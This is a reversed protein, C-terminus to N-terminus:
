HWHKPPTLSLSAVHQRLEEPVPPRGHPEGGFAHWVTDADGTALVGVALPLTAFGREDLWRTVFARDAGSRLEVVLELYDQDESVTEPLLM